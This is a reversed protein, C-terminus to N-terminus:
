YEGDYAEYGYQKFLDFNFEPISDVPTNITEVGNVYSYLVTLRCNEEVAFDAYDSLLHSVHRLAIDNTRKLYSLTYSKTAETYGFDAADGGHLYAYDIHGTFIHDSVMLKAGIMNVYRVEEGDVNLIFTSEKLFLLSQYGSPETRVLVMVNTEGNAPMPFVGASTLAPPDTDDPIVFFEIVKPGDATMDPLSVYSTTDHANLLPFQFYRESESASPPEATDADSEATADTINEAADTDEESPASTLESLDTEWETEAAATTEVETEGGDDHSQSVDPSGVPAGDASGNPDVPNACSAASALIGVTLLAILVTKKMM